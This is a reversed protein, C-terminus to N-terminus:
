HPSTVTDDDHRTRAHVHTRGTQWNTAAVRRYMGSDVLRGAETGAGAADAATCLRRGSTTM